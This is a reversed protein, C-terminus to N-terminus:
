FSLAGTWSRSEVVLYLTVCTHIKVGTRDWEWLFFKDWGLSVALEFRTVSSMAVHCSVGSTSSYRGSGRNSSTGAAMGFGPGSYFLNFKRDLGVRM